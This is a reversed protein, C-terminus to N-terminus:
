DEDMDGEQSLQIGLDKIAHNRERNAAQLFEAVHVFLAKDGINAVIPAKGQDWDPICVSLPAVRVRGGLLVTVIEEQSLAPVPTGILLPFAALLPSIHTDRHKKGFPCVLFMHALSEGERTHCLPCQDKFREQIVTYNYIQKQFM